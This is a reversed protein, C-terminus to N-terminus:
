RDSKKSKINDLVFLAYGIILFVVLLIFIWKLFGLWGLVSIDLFFYPYLLSGARKGIIAARALIFIIYILPMTFMRRFDVKLMSKLRKGFHQVEFKVENAM